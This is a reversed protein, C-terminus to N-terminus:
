VNMCSCGEGQERLLQYIYMLLPSPKDVSLGAAFVGDLSCCTQTRWSYRVPLVENRGSGSSQSSVGELWLFLYLHSPALWSPSSSSVRFTMWPAPPFSAGGDSLHRHRMSPGMMVQAPSGHISLHSLPLPTLQSTDRSCLPACIHSVSSCTPLYFLHM